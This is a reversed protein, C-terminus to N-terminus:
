EFAYVTGDDAGIIVLGNVIAPSGTIASGIEYSWIEKGYSLSV